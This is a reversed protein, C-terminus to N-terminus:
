EGKPCSKKICNLVELVKTNALSYYRYNSDIESALLGVKKLLALHKSVVAQPLRLSEVLEGVSRERSRLLEIVSLRAPHALVRLVEAARALAKPDISLKQTAM